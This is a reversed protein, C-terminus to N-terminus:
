YDCDDELEDEAVSEDNDASSVRDDCDKLSCMDTCSLGNTLCVCKPLECKRHCSCALLNLMAEPLAQSEMWHAALQEVKKEKWSGTEAM